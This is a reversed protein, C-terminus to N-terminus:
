RGGKRLTSIRNSVATKYYPDESHAMIWNYEKEAKSIEGGAQLISGRHYHAEVSAPDLQIARELDALAGKADGKKFRITGRKTFAVADNPNKRIQQSLGVMAMGLQRRNDGSGRKKFFKVTYIVAAVVFLSIILIYVIM